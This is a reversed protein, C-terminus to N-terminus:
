DDDGDAAAASRNRQRKAKSPRLTNRPLPVLKTKVEVTKVEEAHVRTLAPVGGLRTIAAADVESGVNEPLFLTDGAKCAILWPVIGAAFAKPVAFKAVLHDATEAVSMSGTNFVEVNLDLPGDRGLTIPSTLLLIM